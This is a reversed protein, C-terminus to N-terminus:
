IKKTDRELKEDIALRVWLSVNEEPALSIIIKVKDPDIRISYPTKTNKPM